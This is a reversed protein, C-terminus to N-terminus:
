LKVYKGVRKTLLIALAMKLLDPIIFPFVCWTLATWLGIAENNKTYVIMFWVTGFAYCLILGLVMAAIMVPLKEGFLSTILWYAMALLLFGVIYGGTAGLLAGIGHSFGAFVPIGVAGLLIYVLVSLSGRKGGLMGVACFIGFTQLTFPVTTPISIWSCVAIIVAFMAIYVMEKVSLKFKQEKVVKTESMFIAESYVRNSPYYLTNRSLNQIYSIAKM